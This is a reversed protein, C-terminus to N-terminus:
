DGPFMGILLDAKILSINYIQILECGGDRSRQEIKSPGPLLAPLFYQSTDVLFTRM